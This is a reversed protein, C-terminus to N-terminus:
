RTAPASRTDDRGPARWPYGGVPPDYMMMIVTRLKRLQLWTYRTSEILSCRLILTLVVVKVHLIYSKRNTHSSDHATWCGCTGFDTAIDDPCTRTSQPQQQLPWRTQRREGFFIWGRVANLQALQSPRVLM